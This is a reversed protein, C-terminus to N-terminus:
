AAVRPSPRAKRRRRTSTWDAMGVEDRVEACVAVIRELQARSLSANVSFRVLSKNRPTAPWCFVSGFVGRSELVDRLQRTKQEEGAVLSMIQCESAELNYGLDSLRGRLYDANERVRRRRDQSNGVINLTADLAAAEHGLVGSSFVAPRSEYRFYKLARAAGLVVGGRTCFGKSLSATRFHVQDALGLSAVLGEGRNGFVTLSHSEDVVLM